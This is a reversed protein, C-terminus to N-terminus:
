PAAGSSQDPQGAEAAVLAATFCRAFEATMKKATGQVVALGFQALRGRLAMDLEYDLQTGREVASLRGTFIAKVSSASGKDQGGVEAVLKEPPIREIITVQGAFSASIPGVKLRLVGAYTDPGVDEVKEAGPVCAAIHRVDQLLAWVAAVPAEIIFSDKLLM